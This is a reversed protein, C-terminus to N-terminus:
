SGSGIGIHPFQSARATQGMQAQRCGLLLWLGNLRRTLRLVFPFCGPMPLPASVGTDAPGGHLFCKESSTVHTLFSCALGGQIRGAGVQLSASLEQPHCCGKWIWPNMTGSVTALKHIRGIRESRRWACVPHTVWCKWTPRLADESKLSPSLM